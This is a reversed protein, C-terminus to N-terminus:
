WRIHEKFFDSFDIIPGAQPQGLRDTGDFIINQIDYTNITDWYNNKFNLTDSSTSNSVNIALSIINVFNNYNCKAIAGRGVFIHNKNHVFDNYSIDVNTETYAYGGVNIGLGNEKNNKIVNNKILTNKASLSKIGNEANNIIFNKLLTLHTEQSVLGDTMNSIVNNEVHAKSCNFFEIATSQNRFRSHQIQISDVSNLYIGNKVYMCNVYNFVSNDSEILRM